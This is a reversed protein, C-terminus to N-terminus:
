PGPPQVDRAIFTRGVEGVLEAVIRNTYETLLTYEVTAITTTRAEMWPPGPLGGQQRPFGVPLPLWASPILFGVRIFQSTAGTWTPIVVVNTASTGMGGNMMIYSNTLEADTNAFAAWINLAPGPFRVLGSLLAEFSIVVYDGMTTVSQNTNQDFTTVEKTPDWVLLLMGGERSEPPDFDDHWDQAGAPACVVGLALLLLGIRITKM